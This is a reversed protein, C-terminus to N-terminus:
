GGGALGSLVIRSIETRAADAALRQRAAALWEGVAPGAAGELQSLEKVATALDDRSAAIETRAVVAEIDEGRGDIRRIGAWRKLAGLSRDIWDGKSAAPRAALAADIAAPLRAVLQARTPIGDAARSAVPGLAASLRPDTGALRQVTSLEAAFPAGGALADRLQGVALALADAKGVAVATRRSEALSSELGAIRDEYASVASTLKAIEGASRSQGDAAAGASASLSQEIKEIRALLAPDVASGGQKERLAAVAATNEELRGELQRVTAALTENAERLDALADARAKAAATVTALETKLAAFTKEDSGDPSLVERVSPPLSDRWYPLTLLGGAVIALVAVLTWALGAGSRKQGTEAAGSPTEAEPAADPVDTEATEDTEKNDDAMNRKHASEVKTEVGIKPLV